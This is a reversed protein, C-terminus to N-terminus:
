PPARNSAECLIKYPRKRSRQLAMEVVPRASGVGGDPLGSTRVAGVRRPGSAGCRWEGDATFWLVAGSEWARAESASSAVLSAARSAAIPAPEDADAPGPWYESSSKNVWRLASPTRVAALTMAVPSSM